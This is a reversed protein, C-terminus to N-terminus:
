RVTATPDSPATPFTAKQFAVSRSNWTASLSGPGTGSFRSRPPIYKRKPAWRCPLRAKTVWAPYTFGWILSRAVPTQVSKSGVVKEMRAPPTPNLSASTLLTDPSLRWITRASTSPEFSTTRTLEATGARMGAM